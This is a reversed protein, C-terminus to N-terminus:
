RCEGIWFVQGDIVAFAAVTDFSQGQFSFRVPVEFHQDVTVTTEGLTLTRSSPGSVDGIATYDSLALVETEIWLLCTDPGLVEPIGPLLRDFLFDVGGDTSSKM